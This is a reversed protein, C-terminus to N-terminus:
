DYDVGSFQYNNETGDEGDVDEWYEDDADEFVIVEEHDLAGRHTNNIGKANKKARNEAEKSKDDVWKDLL